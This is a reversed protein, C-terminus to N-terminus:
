IEQSQAVDTTEDQSETAATEDPSETAATQDLGKKSSKPLLSPEIHPMVGAHPILVAGLLEKLEPDNEIALMIHRPLLRKKKNQQCADASLEAVEAILYELVGTLYVASSVSVRKAYRGRRLNREIRGVSLIM